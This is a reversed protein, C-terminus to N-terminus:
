ARFAAFVLRPRRSPQSMLGCQWSLRLLGSAALTLRSASGRPNAAHFPPIGVIAEHVYLPDTLISASYISAKALREIMAVGAARQPTSHLRDASFDRRGHSRKGHRGAGARQRM